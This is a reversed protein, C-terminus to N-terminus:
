MAHVSVVLKAYCFRFMRGGRGSQVLPSTGYTTLASHNDRISYEGSRVVVVVVVVVVLTRKSCRQPGARATPTLADDSRGKQVCGSVAVRGRSECAGLIGESLPTIRSM